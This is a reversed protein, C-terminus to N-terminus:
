GAKFVAVRYSGGDYELRDWTAFEQAKALGSEACWRDVASFPCDQGDTAGAVLRGGAALHGALNKVVAPRLSPEVYNLINGAMLIIDFRKDVTVEALNALIWTVPEPKQKAYALMDADVDVGVVRRGRRALEAAIRGTGCGADLVHEGVMPDLFDAEGHVAQGEAEM